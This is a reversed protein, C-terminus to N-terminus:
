KLATSPKFQFLGAWSSGGVTRKSTGRYHQMPLRDQALSCAKQGKRDVTRKGFNVFDLLFGFIPSKSSPSVSIPRHGYERSPAKHSGRDNTSATSSKALTGPLDLQAQRAHGQDFGRTLYDRCPDTPSSRAEKRHARRLLGMDNFGHRRYDFPSAPTINAVQAEDTANSRPSAKLIRALLHAHGIQLSDPQNLTITEQYPM